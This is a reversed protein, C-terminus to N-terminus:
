LYNDVDSLSYYGYRLKKIIQEENYNNLIIEKELEELRAIKMRKFFIVLLYQSLVVIIVLALGNFLQKWLINNFDYHTVAYLLMTITVIIKALISNIFSLLRKM